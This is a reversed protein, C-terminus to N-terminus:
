PRSGVIIQILNPKLDSKIVVRTNIKNENMTKNIIKGISNPESSNERVLVGPGVGGLIIEEWVGEVEWNLEVLVDKIANAFKFSERDGQISMLDVKTKSIKSLVDILNERQKVELVRGKQESELKKLEKSQKFHDISTIILGIILIFLSFVDLKSDDLTPLKLRMWDRFLGIGLLGGFLSLILGSEFRM